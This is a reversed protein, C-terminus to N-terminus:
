ENGEFPIGAQALLCVIQAPLTPDVGNLPPPHLPMCQLDRWNYFYKELQLVLRFVWFPYAGPDSPLFPACVRLPPEVVPTCM